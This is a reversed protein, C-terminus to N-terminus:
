CPNTATANSLRPLRNIITELIIRAEAEDVGAGFRVTKCGYDFAISGEGVGWFGRFTLPNYALPAMRLQRIETADYHKIHGYGFIERKICLASPSVTIVEYGKVQWLWIYIAFAGGVTWFSLWVLIFAAEGPEKKANTILTIPVMIEGALWGCLWLTLFGVTLINRKSPISIALGDGQETATHRPGPPKVFM